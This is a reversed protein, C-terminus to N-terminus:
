FASRLFTLTFEVYPGDSKEERVSAALCLPWSKAADADRWALTAHVSGFAAMLGELYGLREAASACQKWARLTITQRGGGRHRTVAGDLGLPQDVLVTREINGARLELVGNTADGVPINNFTASPM